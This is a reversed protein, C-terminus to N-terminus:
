LKGKHNTATSQSVTKYKVGPTTSLHTGLQCSKGKHMGSNNRWFDAYKQRDSDSEFKLVTIGAQKGDGAQLGLYRVTSESSCQPCTNIRGGARQKAPSRPDFASECVVCERLAM